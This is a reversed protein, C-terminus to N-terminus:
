KVKLKIVTGKPLIQVELTAGEVWTHSPNTLSIISKFTRLLIEGKGCTALCEMLDGVETKDATTIIEKKNQHLKVKYM